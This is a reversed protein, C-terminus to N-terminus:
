HYATYNRQNLYELLVERAYYYGRDKCRQGVLLIVAFAILWAWWVDYFNPMIVCVSIIVLTLMVRSFAYQANFDPVRTKDNSNSYSMAKGFMKRVNAKDDNLEKRLLRVAKEYEYFRIRGYGTYKRKKGCFSPRPAKMLKDSPTGGMLMFYLPELLASVANLMYGIVYGLSMLVLVNLNSIDRCTANSLIFLLVIGSILTSLTDYYKFNM